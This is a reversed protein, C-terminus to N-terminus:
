NESIKEMIKSETNDKGDDKGSGFVEDERGEWFYKSIKSSKGMNKLKQRIRAKMSDPKWGNGIAFGNITDMNKVSNNLLKETIIDLPDKEDEEIDGKEKEIRNRKDDKIAQYIAEEEESLKSFSLWGRVTPLKSFDPDAEKKNWEREIKKGINNGWKDKSYLNVLPTQILAFGRRLVTLRIKAVKQIQTDLTHFKPVCAIFLNFHDRNMDIKKILDKQDAEYFDRNFTVNIMEDAIGISRRKNWFKLVKPRSYLLDRRPEFEYWDEYGEYQRLKRFKKNVEKALKFALTSKGMGREGTGEIAIFCDFKNLLINSIMQIMRKM